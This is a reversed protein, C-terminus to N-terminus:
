KRGLYRCVKKTYNIYADGFATPLFKEEQLIQLHLMLVSFATFFLLVWNFFMSLIGIYVLDFGLFAPNRSIRYIGNTVMITKDKEPIGARWSDKMTWVSLGFVAVGLMGLCTGVIRLLNPLRSTNLGISIMEIIVISYTAVKLIAEVAFVSKDKKGKAIQDTEIGKRKQSIMKGIYISYFAAMIAIGTIQFLM